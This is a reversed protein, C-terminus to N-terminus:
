TAQQVPYSEVICTMAQLYEACFTTIHGTHGGSSIGSVTDAVAM